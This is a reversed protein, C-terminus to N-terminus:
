SRVWYVLAVLVIWLLDVLHWFCAGGEIAAIRRTNFGPGRALASMVLLMGTGLAVHFMHLGTLVYYYMFFNNSLPTFGAPIKGAYEVYKNIGFWVGSLAGCFFLRSALRSPGRRVARVGVVVVLSGSLLLLTNVAAFNADLTRQSTAFLEPELGRYHLYTVFLCTFILLDGFILVWLGVEGPVHTGRPQATVGTM